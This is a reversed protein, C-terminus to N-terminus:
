KKFLYNYNFCGLGIHVAIPMNARELYRQLLLRILFHDTCVVRSCFGGARLRSVRLALPALRHHHRGHLALVRAARGGGPGRRGGRRGGGGHVAGGGRDGRVDHLQVATQPRSCM